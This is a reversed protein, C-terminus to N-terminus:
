EYNTESAHPARALRYLTALHRGTRVPTGGKRMVREVLSQARWVEAALEEDTFRKALMIWFQDKVPKPYVTLELPKM